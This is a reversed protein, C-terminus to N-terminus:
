LRGYQNKSREWLVILVRNQGFKQEALSILFFLDFIGNKSLKQFTKAGFTCRKSTHEGEFNAHLPASSAKLFNLTPRGLVSTM